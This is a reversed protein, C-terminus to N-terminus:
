PQCGQGFRVERYDLPSASLVQSGRLFLVVGSAPADAARVLLLGDGDSEPVSPDAWKIKRLLEMPVCAAIAIRPYEANYQLQGGALIVVRRENDKGVLIYSNSKKSGSYFGPIRGSVPQGSDHLWSIAEADFDSVKALRMREIRPIRSADEPAVGTPQANTSAGDNPSRMTMWAMFLLVFAVLAATLGKPLQYRLQVKREIAPAQVRRLKETGLLANPSAGAGIVTPAASPPGQSVPGAPQSLPPVRGPDWNKPPSSIGWFHRSVGAFEVGIHGGGERYRKAFRLVHCEIERKTRVNVVRLTQGIDVPISVDLLAGHANVDITKGRTFVPEQGDDEESCVCVEVPMELPVRESRRLDRFRRMTETKPKGPSSSSAKDQAESPTENIEYVSPASQDVITRSLDQWDKPPM